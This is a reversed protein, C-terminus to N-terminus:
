TEPLQRNQKKTLIGSLVIKVEKHKLLQLMVSFILGNVIDSLNGRDLNNTGRIIVITQINKPFSSNCIRYLVSEIKDGKIGCNQAQKDFQINQTHHYRKFGQVLSDGIFILQPRKTEIQQLHNFHEKIWSQKSTTIRATVSTTRHYKSLQLIRNNNM